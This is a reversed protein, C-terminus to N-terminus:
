GDVARKAVVGRMTMVDFGGVGGSTVFLYLWSVVEGGGVVVGGRCSVIM